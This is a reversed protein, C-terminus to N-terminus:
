IRKGTDQDIDASDEIMNVSVCLGKENMGDLPAYLAALTKIKSSLLSVSAAGAGDKIFDINVTSISAYSGEPYSTVIMADCNEWDFNRGFYYGGDKNQISLTSCGFAKDAFELSSAESMLNDALFQVVEGDSSAGGNELFQDFGYDGNHRVASLGDELKTEKTTVEVESNTEASNKRSCGATMGLIATMAM